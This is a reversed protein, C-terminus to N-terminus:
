RSMSMQTLIQELTDIRADLNAIDVEQSNVETTLNTVRTSLSNVNAGLTTLLPNTFSKYDQLDTNIAQVTTVTPLEIDGSGELPTNNITKLTPNVQAGSQIGNLKIKDEALMLGDNATTVNPPNWNGAKATTATTGIQLNSTGAGIAVRAAAATSAKAVQLGVSSVGTVEDISVTEGELSTVRADLANDGAIRANIEQQLQAQTVDGGGGGGTGLYQGLTELTISRNGFVSTPLEIDDRVESIDLSHMNRIEIGRVSM